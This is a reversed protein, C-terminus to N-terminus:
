QRINRIESTPRITVAAVSGASGARELDAYVDELSDASYEVDAGYLDLLVDKGDNVYGPQTRARLRQLRFVPLEENRVSFLVNRHLIFAVAVNRSGETRDVAESM